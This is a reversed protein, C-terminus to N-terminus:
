QEAGKYAKIEGHTGATLEAYILRGHEEPDDARATFPHLGPVEDCTVYCNISENQPHVSEPSAVSTITRRLGRAIAEERKTDAYTKNDTM